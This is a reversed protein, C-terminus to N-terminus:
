GGAPEVGACMVAGDGGVVGGEGAFVDAGGVGGGEEDGGGGEIDDFFDAHGFGLESEALGGDVHGHGGLAVGAGHGDPASHFVDAFTAGEGDGPVQAVGM